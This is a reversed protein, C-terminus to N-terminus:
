AMVSARQRARAMVFIQLIVERVEHNTVGDARVFVTHKRAARAASTM